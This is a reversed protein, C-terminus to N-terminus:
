RLLLSLMPIELLLLVNRAQLLWYAFGPHGGGYSDLIQSFFIPYTLETILLIIITNLFLIRGTPKDLGILPILSFAWFLYQPNLYKSTLLFVVIVLIIFAPSFKVGGGKKTLLM